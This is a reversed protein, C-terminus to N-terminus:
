DEVYENESNNEEAEEETLYITSETACSEIDDNDNNQLNNYSLIHKEDYYALLWKDNVIQIMDEKLIKKIHNKNYLANIVLM